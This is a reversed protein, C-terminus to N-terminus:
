WKKSSIEKLVANDLMAEAQLKKLRANEDELAKLRKAESVEMGGYKAKWKYFTADSIGHKRCVDVMKAGAEQEKLIGIIQEETFRSRKM